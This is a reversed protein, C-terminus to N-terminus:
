DPLEKDESCQDLFFRIELRKQDNTAYIYELERIEEEQVRILSNSVNAERNQELEFRKDSILQLLEAETMTVEM